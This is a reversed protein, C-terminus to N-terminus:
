LEGGMGLNADQWAELQLKAQRWDEEPDMSRIAWRHTYARSHTGCVRRWPVTAFPLAVWWRAPYRCPAWTPSAHNTQGCLGWRGRRTVVM